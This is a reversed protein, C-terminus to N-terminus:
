RMIHVFVDEVDNRMLICYLLISTILILFFCSKLQDNTLLHNGSSQIGLFLLVAVNLPAMTKVWLLRHSLQIDVAGPRTFSPYINTRQVADEPPPTYTTESCGTTQVQSIHKFEPPWLPPWRCLKHQYLFSFLCLWKKEKQSDLHTMLVRVM